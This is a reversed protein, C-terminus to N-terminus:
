RPLAEPIAQFPIIVESAVGQPRRDHVDLEYDSGFLHGLRARVTQLGLGHRGGKRRADLGRGDDLVRLKVHAGNVRAIVTVRLADAPGTPGHLIANEVLPQLVFHPVRAQRVDEAVDFLVELRDRFRLQQIDVYARLTRLERELSVGIQDSTAGAMSERLLDGLLGIMVDARDPDEHVLESIVNLTNFLFHPQVQAALVQLRAESLGARLTASAVREESYWRYFDVAHVLGVIGLYVFVGPDVQFLLYGLYTSPAPPVFFRQVLYTGTATAVAIAVGFGLHLLAPLFWRSRSARFTRALVVALPTAWFWMGVDTLCRVVQTGLPWSRSNTILEFAMDENALVIGFLTWGGIVAIWFRWSRLFALSNTM